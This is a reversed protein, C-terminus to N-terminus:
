IKYKKLSEKMQASLSPFSYRGDTKWSDTNEINSSALDAKLLEDHPCLYWQDGDPFAIYLDKNEYKKDVTLRGKLQVKIFTAGDIHQAIFDAGQWDDSLRISTFGYEALRASIQHFNFNEKQRANLKKYPIKELNIM